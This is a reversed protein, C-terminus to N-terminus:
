EEDIYSCWVRNAEMFQGFKGNKDKPHYRLINVIEEPKVEDPDADDMYTWFVQEGSNCLWSFFIEAQEKTEFEMVVEHSM